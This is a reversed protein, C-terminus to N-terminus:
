KEVVEKDYGEVNVGYWAMHEDNWGARLLINRENLSVTYHHRGKKVVSPNSTDYVRYLGIMDNELLFAEDYKQEETLEIPEYSYWGIGEYTWGWGICLDREYASTTYHHDGSCNPNLNDYLRYVPVAGEMGEAPAYWAIGEYVWGPYNSVINREQLSATYFHEGTNTDYLRYMPNYFYIKCSTSLGSPTTATITVEGAKKALVRGNKDVTAVSTDSSTWTVAHGSTVQIFAQKKASAKFEKDKDITLRSLDKKTVVVVCNESVGNNATVTITATGAKWAFIVGDEVSVVNADSSTWVLTEESNELKATLTASAFRNISVTSQYLTLSPTTSESSTQDESSTKEESDTPASVEVSSTPVSSEAGSSGCGVGVAATMATLLSLVALLKKKM